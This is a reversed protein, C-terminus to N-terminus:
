NPAEGALTGKDANRKLNPMEIGGGFVDWAAIGTDDIIIYSVNPSGEKAQPPLVPTRDPKSDRVDVNITGNFPKGM